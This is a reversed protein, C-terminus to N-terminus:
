LRDKPAPCAEYVYRHLLVSTSMFYCFLLAQWNLMEALKVIGGKHSGLIPGLSSAKRYCTPQQKLMVSRVKCSRLENGRQLLELQFRTKDDRVQEWDAELAAKEEQLAAKEENLKVIRESLEQFIGPCGL